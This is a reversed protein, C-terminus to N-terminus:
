AGDEDSEKAKDRYLALLRDYDAVSVYGSSRSEEDTSGWEKIGPKWTDQYSCCGFLCIDVKEPDFPESM